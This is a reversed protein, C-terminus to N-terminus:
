QIRPARSERQESAGQGMLVLRSGNHRYDLKRSFNERRNLAREVQSAAHIQMHGRRCRGALAGNRSDSGTQHSEPVFYGPARLVKADPLVKGAANRGELPGDM